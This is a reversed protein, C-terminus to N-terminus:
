CAGFVCFPLLQLAAQCGFCCTCAAACALFAVAPLAALAGDHAVFGTGGGQLKVVDKDPRIKKGDYSGEPAVCTKYTDELM